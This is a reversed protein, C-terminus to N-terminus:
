FFQMFKDNEKNAAFIIHYHKNKSESCFRIEGNRFKPIIRQELNVLQCGKSKVCM